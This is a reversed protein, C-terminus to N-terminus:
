EAPRSSNFIDRHLKWEGNEKKWIVIYKADDIVQNGDALLQAKSVEIATDGHQEVEGTKLKISKVGMDMFSQFLERIASKGKVVETNPPLVQADKTYLEAMGAADAREYTEMFLQIRKNITNKLNKDDM